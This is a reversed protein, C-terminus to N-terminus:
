AVDDVRFIPEHGVVRVPGGTRAIQLDRQSTMWDICDYCVRVDTDPWLRVSGRTLPEECCACAPAAPLLDSM